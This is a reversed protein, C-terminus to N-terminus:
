LPHTINRQEELIFFRPGRQQIGCDEKQCLINEYFSEEWSPYAESPIVKPPPPSPFWQVQTEERPLLDEMAWGNHVFLFTSLISVLIM